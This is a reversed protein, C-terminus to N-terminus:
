NTARKPTIFGAGLGTVALTGHVIQDAANTALLFTEGGWVAISTTVFVYMFGKFLAGTRAWEPKLAFALAILGSALGSLNHWGNTALTGYIHGPSSVRVAEASTPFSSDLTFGIASAVVLFIGSVVLYIRAPSWASTEASLGARERAATAM